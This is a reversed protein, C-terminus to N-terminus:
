AKRIAIAGYELRYGMCQSFRAFVVASLLIYVYAYDLPAEMSGDNDYVIGCCTLGLKLQRVVNGDWPPM